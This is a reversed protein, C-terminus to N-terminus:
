REISKLIKRVPKELAMAATVTVILKLLNYPLIIPLMIDDLLDKSISFFNIWVLYNFILKVALCLIIGVSIWFIKCNKKTDSKNHFLGIFVVMIISVSRMIFGIWGASSFM